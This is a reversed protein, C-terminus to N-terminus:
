ERIKATSFNSFSVARASLGPFGKFSLEYDITDTFAPSPNTAPFPLPSSSDSFRANFYDDGVGGGFVTDQGTVISDNGNAGTIFTNSFIPRVGSSVGLITDAGDSEVSDNGDSYGGGPLTSTEQIVMAYSITDNGGLTGILRDSTRGTTTSPFPDNDNGTTITFYLSAESYGGLLTDLGEGMGGLITDQGGSEVSDNGDSYGGGPLTDQGERKTSVDESEGTGNAIILNKLTVKTSDAVANRLSGSGSDNTNTVTITREFVPPESNLTIDSAVPITEGSEEQSAFLQQGLPRLQKLKKEHSSGNDASYGALLTDAGDSDTSENQSYAVANRLSGSGSDHNSSQLVIIRKYKPTPM